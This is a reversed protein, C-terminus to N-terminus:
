CVLQRSHRHLGVTLAYTSRDAEGAASPSILVGFVASVTLSVLSYNQFCYVCARCLEQLQRPSKIWCAALAAVPAHPSASACWQHAEDVDMEYVPGAAHAQNLRVRKPNQVQDIKITVPGVSMLSGYMETETTGEPPTGGAALEWLCRAGFLRCSALEATQLHCQSSFYEVSFSARGKPRYNPQLPRREIARAREHNPHTSGQPSM